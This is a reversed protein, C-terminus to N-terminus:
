YLYGDIINGIESRKEKSELGGREEEKGLILLCFGEEREEREGKREKSLFGNNPSDVGGGRARGYKGEGVLGSAVREGLSSERVLLGGGEGERRKNCSGKGSKQWGPLWDWLDVLM